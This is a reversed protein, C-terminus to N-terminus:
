IAYIKDKESFNNVNVALHRGVNQLDKRAVGARGRTCYKNKVIM